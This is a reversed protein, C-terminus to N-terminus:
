QLTLASRRIPTEFKTYNLDGVLIARKIIARETELAKIPAASAAV